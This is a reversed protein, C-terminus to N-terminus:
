NTLYLWKGDPSVMEIMIIQIEATLTRVYYDSFMRTRLRKSEGPNIDETLEGAAPQDEFFGNRNVVMGDNDYFVVRYSINKIINQTNNRLNFNVRRALTNNIPIIVRPGIIEVEPPEISEVNQTSFLITLITIATITKRM